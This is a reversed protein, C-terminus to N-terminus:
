IYMLSVHKVVYCLYVSVCQLLAYVCLSCLHHTCCYGYMGLTCIIIIVFVLCVCLGFSSIVVILYVFVCINIVIQTPHHFLHTKLANTFTCLSDKHKLDFPLDKCSAPRQYDFFRQGCTKTRVCSIKLYSQRVILAPKQISHVYQCTRVRVESKHWDTYCVFYLLGQLTCPHTINQKNVHM